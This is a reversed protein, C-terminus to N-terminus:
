EYHGRNFNLNRSIKKHKYTTLVITDDPVDHSIISGAKIICNKGIKVGVMISCRSEIISYAGIEADGLIATDNLIQVGDGIIVDHAIGVHAAIIANDGIITNRILGMEIFSYSKIIVNEGIIVKYKGMGDANLIGTADDPQIPPLGIGCYSGVIANGKFETNSIFSFPMITQQCDSKFSIGGGYCSYDYNFNNQRM